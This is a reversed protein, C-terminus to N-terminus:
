FEKSVGVSIFRGPIWADTVRTNGDWRYQLTQHSNFVNFVNIHLQRGVNSWSEPLDLHLGYSVVFWPKARMALTPDGLDFRGSGYDIRVSHASRGLRYEGVLSLTHRQDWPAYFMEDVYGLDARNAKTKQYTYSLWGRWNSSMKKQLAVELGSSRGRGLNSYTSVGTNPDVHTDGLNKYETRFPTVRLATDESLQREFSLELNTSTQPDASGLGPMAQELTPGGPGFIEMDPDFYVKQVSCAPVFKAFKGWNIKWVTRENPSYALGFRPTTVSRSIDPIPDGSYGAGAVYARGQRDYRIREHRIGLESTWKDSLRIQDQLYFDSQQTDVDARYLPFGPYLYYSNDSALFSAGTKLLHKPGLQSTYALQLGTRDSGIKAYVGYMGVLNQEIDTRMFYPRVTLFSEPSFNHSWTVAGVTYEQRMYDLEHPTPIGNDGTDHYTDTNGLLSGSMALLTVTNSKSPWVLKTVADYYQQQKLIPGDLDTKQAAAAVYYNFSDGTGAGFEMQGDYYSYDGGELNMRLGAAEAGTKKVENLVGSIANGYEASFGGTYAQLKSVGTTYLNTGFMGTNPDTIPMGELYWGTQDARGGRVHIQGSGSPEVIVGPLASLVGTASRVTSPDLRTLPEQQATVLNLTHVVDRQVMPRPRTIVVEEERTAEEEMVIEVDSRHDMTVQIGGVTTTAYGVLEARVEYDGPPVNTITFRGQSDTVTSLTTGELIINVGSLPVNDKASRVVGTIVGTTSAGVWFATMTLIWFAFAWAIRKRTRNMM